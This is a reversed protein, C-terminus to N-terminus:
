QVSGTISHFLVASICFCAYGNFRCVAAALTSTSWGAPINSLCIRGSVLSSSGTSAARVIDFPVTDRPSNDGSSSELASQASRYRGIAADSKRTQPHKHYDPLRFAEEMHKIQPTTFGLTISNFSPISSSQRMDRRFSVLLDAMDFACCSMTSMDHM